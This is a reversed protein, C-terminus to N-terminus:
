SDFIMTMMSDFLNIFIDDSCNNLTTFGCNSQNVPIILFSINIGANMGTGAVLKVM